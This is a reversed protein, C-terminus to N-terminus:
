LGNHYQDVLGKLDTSFLDFVRRVAPDRIEDASYIKKDAPAGDREVRGWYTAFNRESADLKGEQFLEFKYDHGASKFEFTAWHGDFSQYDSIVVTTWARYAYKIGSSPGRLERKKWGLFFERPFHRADLAAIAALYSAHSDRKFDLAMRLGLAALLLVPVWVILTSLILSSAARASGDYANLQGILDLRGALLAIILLAAGNFLSRRSARVRGVLRTGFKPDDARDSTWIPEFEIGSLVYFSAWAGVMLGPLLLVLGVLYIGATALNYTVYLSSNPDM